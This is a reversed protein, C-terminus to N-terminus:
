DGNKTYYLYIYSETFNTKDAYTEIKIQNEDHWVSVADWGNENPFPLPYTINHIFDHAEGYFYRFTYNNLNHPITKTAKNPLAGCNLRKLYVRKGDIYENTAVEQGTIIKLKTAFASGDEIEKIKNEIMKYITEFDIYNRMDQFDLIGSSGTRFRVLEYQNQTLNPYSSTSKIVKYSAQNFETDTNQKNLDIEIVLKCYATDTGASISTSSDEEVPRGQIIAVGSQVTLTSGNYTVEMNKKYNNRIGNSGNLFTDFILAAIHNGFIQEKFVHGKLM